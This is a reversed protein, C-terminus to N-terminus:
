KVPKFEEVIFRGFRPRYDGVGKKTGADTLINSLVDLPIDDDDLVTLTFEARWEALRPRHRMVRGKIVVPRSDIAYNFLAVGKHDTLPVNEPSILLGGKVPDKYTKKGQGRIQFGSSMRVLCQYFHEGPLCLQGKEQGEEAPLRYAGSEAEDAPDPPGSTRKKVRSALDAGAQASFKHMLLACDPANKLVVHITNM